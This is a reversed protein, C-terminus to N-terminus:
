YNRRHHYVSVLIYLFFSVFDYVNISIFGIRPFFFLIWILKGPFEVFLDIISILFCSENTKRMASSPWTLYKAKRHVWWVYWTLRFSTLLKNCISQKSVSPKERYFDFTSYDNWRACKRYVDFNRHIVLWSPRGKLM